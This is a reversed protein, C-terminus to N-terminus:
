PQYRRPSLILLSNVSSNECQREILSVIDSIEGQLFSFYNDGAIRM